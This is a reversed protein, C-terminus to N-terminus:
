YSSVILEGKDNISIAPTKGDEGNTVTYTTINGNTYTITYTDILGETKTKEIKSIGVGAPGPTGGGFQIQKKLIAYVEEPKLSM